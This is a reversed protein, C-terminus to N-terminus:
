NIHTDKKLDKTPPLPHLKKRSVSVVQCNLRSSAWLFMFHSAPHQYAIYGDVCWVDVPMCIEESQEEVRTLDFIFFQLKEATHSKPYPSQTHTSTLVDIHHWASVPLLTEPNKGTTDDGTSGNFWSLLLQDPFYERSIELSLFHEVSNGYSSGSCKRNM